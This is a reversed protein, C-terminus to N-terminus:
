RRSNYQKVELKDPCIELLDKMTKKLVPHVKNPSLEVMPQLVFRRNQIHPHPITLGPLAITDNNFFLIDIDITRPAYKEQRIRGMGAEIKLAKELLEPATCGTELCIVQNLFAPQDEKGWAATEYISSRKIMRGCDMELRQAATELYQLRNGTNGGLLLYAKNM